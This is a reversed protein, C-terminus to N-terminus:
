KLANNFTQMYAIILTKNYYRSALDRLEDGFVFTSEPLKKIIRNKFRTFEKYPEKVADPLLKTKVAGILINNTSAIQISSIIRGYTKEPVGIDFADIVNQMKTELEIVRTCKAINENTICETMTKALGKFRYLEEVFTMLNSLITLKDMDLLKRLDDHSSFLVAGEDILAQRVKKHSKPIRVVTSEGHPWLHKRYNSPMKDRELGRLWTAASDSMTDVILLKSGSALLQSASDDASTYLFPYTFGQAQNERMSWAEYLQPSSLAKQKASGAAQKEPLKYEAFDFTRGLEKAVKKFTDKFEPDDAFFVYVREKSNALHMFRSGSKPLEYIKPVVDKDAGALFGCAKLIQPKSKPTIQKITKKLCPNNSVIYASLSQHFNYNGVEFEANDLTIKIDLKRFLKYLFSDGQLLDHINIVDAITNISKTLTTIEATIRTALMKTVYNLKDITAKNYNLTERSAAINFAGIPSYIYFRSDLVEKALPTLGDPLDALKYEIPGMVVSSRAGYSYGSSNQRILTYVDGNEPDTIVYHPEGAIPNNMDLVAADLKPYEFKFGNQGKVIPKVPFFRLATSATNNFSSVDTDKIPLEIQLGNVEDTELQQLQIVKPIGHDDKFIQFTTLFGEYYSKVTFQDTYAFPTKSGLGLGGILANTENKNSEGYTLYLDRLAEPPLGTGHDRIYFTTDMRNPLKMVFPEQHGAATHSDMANASLERIIALIPDTYIQASLINYMAASGKISIDQIDTLPLNTDFRQDTNTLLM